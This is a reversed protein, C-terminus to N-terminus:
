GFFGNEKLNNSVEIKEINEIYDCNKPYPLVKMKLTKLIDRKTKKDSLIYIYRLKGAEKKRFFTHGIRKKLHEVNHSGYTSFVTRSHLWKYPNETLSVSYNDMLNTDSNLGTFLFNSAQYICGNHGQETDSYSIVVKLNPFDKKLLKLSKSIVFSEINRGYGDHIFLRVLEIVENLKVMSSISKAARRGIPGGFVVTGILIEDYGDFFESKKETTYFVGYAINCLSWKHSYHNKVILDEALFKDIKRISIKSSDFYKEELM